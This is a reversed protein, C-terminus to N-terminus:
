RSIFVTYYFRQFTIVFLNLKENTESRCGETMREDGLKQEKSKERGPAYSKHNM